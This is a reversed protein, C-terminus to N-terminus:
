MALQKCKKIYYKVENEWHTKNKYKEYYRIADSLRWLASFSRFAKVLSLSIRGNNEVYGQVFYQTIRDVGYKNMLFSWHAIAFGIDWYIPGFACHEFDIVGAVDSEDFIINGPNYDGHIVYKPLLNKIRKNILENVKKYEKFLNEFETNLTCAQLHDSPIYQYMLLNNKLADLRKRTYFTRRKLLEESFLYENAKFRKTIKHFHNLLSGSQTIKQKKNSKKTKSSEIYKLVQVNRGDETREFFNGQLSKYTFQVPYGYDALFDTVISEFCIDEDLRSKGPHAIKVVVEGGLIPADFTYSKHSYGQALFKLEVGVVGYHNKLVELVQLRDNSLQQELSLGKQKSM